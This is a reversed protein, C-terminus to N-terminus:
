HRAHGDLLDALPLIVAAEAPVDHPELRGPHHCLLENGRVSWSAPVRGTLQAAALEPSLWATPAGPTATRIRFARDFHPNGTVTEGSGLLGHRLRSVPGRPEVSAAPFERGLTAVTVVHYHTNISTGDGADTVSYEAVAVPRGHLVTSFCHSVGHKNGGPLQRGWGVTPHRTLTWGHQDAWQQQRDHTRRNRRATHVASIATITAFVVGVAGAMVILLDGTM